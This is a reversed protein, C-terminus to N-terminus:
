WGAGEEQGQGEGEEGGEQAPTATPSAATEPIGGKGPHRRQLFPTVTSLIPTVKCRLPTVRWRVMVELGAGALALACRTEELRKM